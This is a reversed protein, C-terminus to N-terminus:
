YEGQQGNHGTYYKTGVRNDNLVWGVCGLGLHTKNPMRTHKDVTKCRTYINNKEATKRGMYRSHHKDNIYKNSTDNCDNNPPL